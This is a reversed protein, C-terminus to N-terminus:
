KMPYDAIEETVQGFNNVYGIGISHVEAEIPKYKYESVLKTMEKLFANKQNQSKFIGALISFHPTFEMFANPTGYLEFSRKKAPYTKAWSPIEANKDRYKMLRFIVEDSFAQLKNNDGNKQKSNDVELMVFSSKSPNIYTTKIIFKKWRSAIKKVETKIDDLKKVDFDTLYLTIHIPHNELFPTINYKKLIGSKALYKNFDEIQHKIKNSVSLHIDINQYQDNSKEAKLNITFFLTLLLLCCLHIKIIKEPISNSLNCVGEQQTGTYSNPNTYEFIM